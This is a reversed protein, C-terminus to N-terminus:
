SFVEKFIKFDSKKAIETIDTILMEFRIDPKDSGYKELANKYTIREFPKKIKIGLVDKFVSQIMGEVIGMVDKDDAFSMELDIQTHEPQRDARQDEDRFCRAFQFYRDIGAIMLLQKYIQPSQPLAYFKGKYEPNYMLYGQFLVQRVNSHVSDIRLWIRNFFDGMLRTQTLVGLPFRVGTKAKLPSHGPGSSSPPPCVSIKARAGGM